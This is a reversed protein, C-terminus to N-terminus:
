NEEVAFRELLEKFLKVYERALEEAMARRAERRELDRRPEIVRDSFAVWLKARRFPLWPPVCNLKDAGLIVCPLVPVGTRYSILCVGHKIPGGRICSDAGKAVGGEPCIGVIRGGQLRHISKRVASVPVGFRRVEIANLARLLWAAPRYKFFETRTIWDIPRPLLVALLFPEMHSLHTCAILYPGSRAMAEPRILHLRMTCFFVFRGGLHCLRYPWDMSSKYPKIPPRELM